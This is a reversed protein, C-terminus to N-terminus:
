LYPLTTFLHRLHYTFQIMTTNKKKGGEMNAAVMEYLPFQCLICMLMEYGQRFNLGDFMIDKRQNNYLLTAHLCAISTHCDYQNDARVCM